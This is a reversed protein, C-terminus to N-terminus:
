GARTYTGIHETSDLTHNQIRDLVQQRTAGSALDLEGGLAFFRFYYRHTEGRPPCPGGYGIEGFDNRGQTGGRELQAESPLGEELFNRHKPLNYLVWHSFAGVPADPDDCIMALSQAAQPVGQWNFPPSVNEGDCTYKAPIRDGSGFASSELRM